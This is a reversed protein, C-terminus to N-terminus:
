EIKETDLSSIGAGYSFRLGYAASATIVKLTDYNQLVDAPGGRSINEFSTPLCAADVVAGIKFFEEDEFIAFTLAAVPQGFEEIILGALTKDQANLNIKLAGIEIRNMLEQPVGSFFDDLCGEM